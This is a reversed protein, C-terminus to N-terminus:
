KCLLVLPLLLLWAHHTGTVDGQPCRAQSALPATGDNGRNGEGNTDRKGNLSTSEVRAEDKDGRVDMMLVNLPVVNDEDERVKMGDARHITTVSVFSAKGDGVCHCSHNPGIGL